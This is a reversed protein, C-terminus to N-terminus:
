DGVDFNGALSDLKRRLPESPTAGETQLWVIEASFDNRMPLITIINCNSVWGEVDFEATGDDASYSTQSLSARLGRVYVGHPASDQTCLSDVCTEGFVHCDDDRTCAIDGPSIEFSLSAFGAAGAPAGATGEVHLARLEDPVTEPGLCVFSYDPAHTYEISANHVPVGSTGIILVDLQAAINAVAMAANMNARDSTGTLLGVTLALQVETDTVETVGASMKIARATYGCRPEYGPNEEPFGCGAENYPYEDGQEIDTDFAFGEIVVTIDRYGSLNLSERDLTVTTESIEGSLIVEHSYRAAAIRSRDGDVHQWAADVIPFDNAFEGTSFDGGILETQLASQTCGAAADFLMSFRSVRHSLDDWEQGWTSPIVFESCGEPDSGGVDATDDDCGAGGLLLLLACCCWLFTKKTVPMPLPESHADDLM